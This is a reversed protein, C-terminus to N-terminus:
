RTAPFKTLGAGGNLKVGGGVGAPGGVGAGFAGVIVDNVGLEATAPPAPNLRVTVPAFKLAAEVTCNLPFGSAVVKTDLVWNVAVIAAPLMEVAPVAATVTALGEALPPTEAAEVNKM